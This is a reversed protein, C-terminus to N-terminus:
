RHPVAHRSEPEAGRRGPHVHRPRQAETIRVEGGSRSASTLIVVAGSRLSFTPPTLRSITRPSVWFRGPAGTRPKGWVGMRVGGRGTAPWRASAPPLHLHHPNRAMVPQGHVSTPQRVMPDPGSRDSSTILQNVGPVVGSVLREQPWNRMQRSWRVQGRPWARAVAEGWARFSKCIRTRSGRLSAGFAAVTM